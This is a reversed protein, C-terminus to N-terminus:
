LFLLAAVPLHRRAAVARDATHQAHLRAKWESARISQLFRPRVDPLRPQAPPQVTHILYRLSPPLTPLCIVCSEYVYLELLTQPLPPLYTVLPCGGCKLRRMDLPLRPLHLLSPCNWCTLESLRAPLQPLLTVGACRYLSFYELGAPLPPFEPCDGRRDAFEGCNILILRQLGEPLMGVSSLISCDELELCRLNPLESLDGTSSLHVCSIHVSRVSAPLPPLAFVKCGTIKLVIGPNGAAEWAAIADSATSMSTSFHHM